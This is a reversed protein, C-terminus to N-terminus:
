HVVAPSPATCLATHVSCCCCCCCVEGVDELYDSQNYQPYLLLIPWHMVGDEDIYPEANTRKLGSFVPPGVRIGRERCGARVAELKAHRAAAEKRTAAAIRDQRALLESAEKVLPDFAAGGAEDSLRGLECIELASSARGLAICAKAARFSAKTNDSWYRLAKDCCDLVTIYKKRHLYIAALNSYCTSLVKKMEKKEKTAKMAHEIADNYHKIANPYWDPGRQFSDNGKQKSERALQQPTDIDDYEANQLAQLMMNTKMDGDTVKSMFLPNEALADCYKSREEASWTALGELARDLAESRAEDPGVDDELTDMKVAWNLM